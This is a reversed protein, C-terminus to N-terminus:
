VSLKYIIDIVHIVILMPMTLGDEANGKFMSNKLLILHYQNYSVCYIEYVMYKKASFVEM